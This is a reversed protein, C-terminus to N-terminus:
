VHTFVWGPTGMGDVDNHTVVTWRDKMSRMIINTCEQYSLSTDDSGAHFGVSFVKVSEEAAGVLWNHIEAGLQIANMDHPAWSQQHNRQRMLAEQAREQNRQKIKFRGYSTTRSAM